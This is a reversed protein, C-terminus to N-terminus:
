GFYKKSVEAAIGELMQKFDDKQMGCQFRLLGNSMFFGVTFDPVARAMNMDGGAIIKATDEDMRQRVIEAAKRRSVSTKGSVYDELIKKAQEMTDCNAMITVYDDLFDAEQM